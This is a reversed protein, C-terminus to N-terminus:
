EIRVMSYSFVPLAWDDYGFVVSDPILVYGDRVRPVSRYTSPKKEKRITIVPKDLNRSCSYRKMDTAGLVEATKDSYDIMYAAIGGLDVIDSYRNRGYIAECNVHGHPWLRDMESRMLVSNCVMHMHRAGRKGVQYVYVFKFPVGKAAYARRLDRLYKRMDEKMDAFARDKGAGTYTLTVYWDNITFNTNLLWRLKDIARKRNAEKVSKKSEANVRIRKEGKPHERGTHYFKHEIVDGSIVERFVYGM